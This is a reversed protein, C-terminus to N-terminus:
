VAVRFYRRSGAILLTIWSHIITRQLVFKRPKTVQSFQFEVKNQKKLSRGSVFVSFSALCLSFPFYFISFTSFLFFFSHLISLCLNQFSSFSPYLFFPNFFLPLSTSHFFFPHRFPHFVFPLSHLYRLPSYLPSHLTSLLSCLASLLTLTRLPLFLWHLGTVRCTLDKRPRAM